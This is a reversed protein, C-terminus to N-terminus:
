TYRWGVLGMGLFLSAFTWPRVVGWAQSIIIWMQEMQKEKHKAQENVWPFPSAPVEKGLFACLPEWGQGLKYELRREEPVVERIRAYYARYGETMKRRVEHVDRGRWHGLVIKRMAMVGRNNIVPCVVYCIFDALPGWIARLIQSDFSPAWREVDREVIVVKADPYAAALQDAFTSGVDTIADYGGFIEDWDARTFLPPKDAATASPWTADAARELQAWHEPLDMLDLGHHSRLGLIEYAKAMSATGTRFLGANIVSPPGHHRDSTKETAM